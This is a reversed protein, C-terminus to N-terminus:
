KKNATKIGRNNKNSTISGKQLDFFPLVLVTNKVQKAEVFMKAFGRVLIVVTDGKERWISM